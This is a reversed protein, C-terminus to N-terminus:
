QKENLKIMAFVAYNFIDYYNASLGESVTTNGQHDEIQKVRMLKMLIIDVFSSLRMQRWAEGYDHNKNRLLEKANCVYQDYWAVVQAKDSAEEEVIAGMVLQIQAMVAYNAIGMYESRIDDGIGGVLQCGKEGISRIRRAKILLQDTISLPRLVRWSLGYDEMKKVFLERCSATVEDFEELTKDM